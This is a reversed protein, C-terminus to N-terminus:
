LRQSVLAVPRPQETGDDALWIQTNHMHLIYVGVPRQGKQM